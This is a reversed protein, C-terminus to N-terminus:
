QARWFTIILHENINSCFLFIVQTHYAIETGASKWKLKVQRKQIYDKSFPTFTYNTAKFHCRNRYMIKCTYVVLMLIFLINDNNRFHMKHVLSVYNQLNAYASLSINSLNLPIITEWVMRDLFPPQRGLIIVLSMNPKLFGVLFLPAQLGRLGGGLDVLAYTMSLAIQRYM